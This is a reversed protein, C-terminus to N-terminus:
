RVLAHGVLVQLPLPADADPTIRLIVGEEWRAPNLPLRLLRINRDDLRQLGTDPSAGGASFAFRAGGRPENLYPFRNDGVFVELQRAKETVPIRLCTPGDITVVRRQRTGEIRLPAANVCGPHATEPVLHALPLATTARIAFLGAVILGVLTLGAAAPGRWRAPAPDSAAPLAALLVLAPLIPLIYRPQVVFFGLTAVAFIAIFGTAAITLPGRAARAAGFLALVLLPLTALRYPWGPLPLPVNPAAVIRLGNLNAEPNLTGFFAYGSGGGLEIAKRWLMRPVLGGHEALEQTFRAWAFAAREAEPVQPWFHEYWQYIFLGPSGTAVELAAMLWLIWSGSSVHGIAGGVLTGALVVAVVLSAAKALRALFRGQGALLVAALGAFLLFHGVSRVPNLVAIVLALAPLIIFVDRARTREALRVVLLLGLVLVPLALSDSTALPIAHLREPSLIALPLAIVPARPGIRSRALWWIGLLFGSQLAANSLRLALYSEGFLAGIPFTYLASRTWFVTGLDSYFSRCVDWRIAGAAGSQLGCRYYIGFDDPQNTVFVLAVFLNVACGAVLLAVGARAWAKDDREEPM